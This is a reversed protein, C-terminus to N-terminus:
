VAGTDGTMNEDLEEGIDSILIGDLHDEEHQIVCAYLGELYIDKRLLKGDVMEDYFVTVANSRQVKYLGPISLCGEISEILPGYKIIAPNIFVKFRQSEDSTSLSMDLIAIRANYGCQIGAIGIGGYIQMHRILDSAVIDISFKSWGDDIPKSAQRLVHKWEPM